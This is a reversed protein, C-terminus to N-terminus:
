KSVRNIQKFKVVLSLSGAIRMACSDIRRHM